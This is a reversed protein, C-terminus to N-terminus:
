EAQAMISIFQAPNLDKSTVYNCIFWMGVGEERNYV